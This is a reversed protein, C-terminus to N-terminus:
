ILINHITRLFTTAVYVFWILVSGGMRRGIDMQDKVRVANFIIGIGSVLLESFLLEAHLM